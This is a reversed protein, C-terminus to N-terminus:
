RLSLDTVQSIIVAFVTELYPCMRLNQSFILKPPMGTLGMGHTIDRHGVKRM